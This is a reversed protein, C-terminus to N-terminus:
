AWGMSVLVLVMAAAMNGMNGCGNDFFMKITVSCSVVVTQLNFLACDAIEVDSM